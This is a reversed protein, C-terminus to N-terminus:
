YRGMVMPKSPSLLQYRAYSGAPFTCSLSPSPVMDQEMEKLIHQFVEVDCPLRLPGEATYGYEMEADDLLAKFLPHNVSETRIIFREEGAGVYVSLCGEPTVKKHKKTDSRPILSKTKFIRSFLSKRRENGKEM